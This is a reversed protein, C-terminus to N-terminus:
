DAPGASKRAQFKAKRLGGIKRLEKRYNRYLLVVFVVMAAGAVGLAENIPFAGTQSPRTEGLSRAGSEDVSYVGIVGDSEADILWKPTGNVIAPRPNSSNEISGLAQGATIQQGQLNISESYKVYWEILNLNSYDVRVFLEDDYVLTENVQRKWTFVYDFSFSKKYGYYVYEDRYRQPLSSHVGQAVVLAEQQSYREVGDGIIDYNSYGTVELTSTDVWVDTNSVNGKFGVIGEETVYAPDEYIGTYSQAVGIIDQRVAEDLAAANGALVLM